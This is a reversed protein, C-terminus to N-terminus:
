TLQLRKVSGLLRQLSLRFLCLRPDLIHDDDLFTDGEAQSLEFLKGDLLSKWRTEFFFFFFVPPTVLYSLLRFDIESLATPLKWYQAAGPDGYGLFLDHLWDKFAQALGM